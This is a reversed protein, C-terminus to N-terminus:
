NMNLFYEKIYTDNVLSEFFEAEIEKRRARLNPNNIIVENLQELFTSHEREQPFYKALVKIAKEFGIRKTLKERLLRSSNNSTNIWVASPPLTNFLNLLFPRGDRRAQYYIESGAKSPMQSRSMRIMQRENLLLYNEITNKLEESQKFRLALVHRVDMLEAFSGYENGYQDKVGFFDEVRQSILAIAQNHKPANRVLSELQTKFVRMVNGGAQNLEHSEDIILEKYDQQSEKYNNVHYNYLKEAHVPGFIADINSKSHEHYGHPFQSEIDYAFRSFVQWMLLMYALVLVPSDTSSRADKVTKFDVSVVRAMGASLKTPGSIFRYKSIAGNIRNVIYKPVKIQTSATETFANDFEESNLVPMIDALTPVAYTQAKSALDFENREIFYDVIEWWITDQNIDYNHKKLYDTIIIDQTAQFRKAGSADDNYNKFLREVATKLVADIGTPIEGEAACLVTIMNCIQTLWQENPIRVGLPTDMINITSKETIDMDRVFVEHQQEPPLSAQLTYLLGQSSGGIDFFSLFPLRGTSSEAIVCIARIAMFMSKGFRPPAVTFSSKNAGVESNTLAIPIFKGDKTRLPLAGRRFPRAPRDLPLMITVEELPAYAKQGPTQRCLGVGATSMLMYLKDAQKRSITAAGWGSVVSELTNIADSLKEAEEKHYMFSFGASCEVVVKKNSHVTRLYQWSEKLDQSVGTVDFSSLVENIGSKLQINSWFSPNVAKLHFSYTFPASFRILRNFLDQFDKRESPFTDIMVSQHVYDGVQVMDGNVGFYDRDDDIRQDFVQKAISPIAFHDYIKEGALKNHTGQGEDIHLFPKQNSRPVLPLWDPHTAPFFRRRNVEILRDITLLKASLRIFGDNNTLADLLSDVRGMHTSLMESAIKIYSQNNAVSNYRTKQKKALQLVEKTFSAPTSYIVLYCSEKSTREAYTNIIDEYLWGLNCIANLNNIYERTFRKLDNHHEMGGYIFTCKVEMGPVTLLGSLEKQLMEQFTDETYPDAFTGDIEIATGIAGHRTFWCYPSNSAVAEIDIFSSLDAQTITRITEFFDNLIPYFLM